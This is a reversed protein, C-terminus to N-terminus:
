HPRTLAADIHRDPAAAVGAGIDGGVQGTRRFQERLGRRHAETTGGWIGELSHDMAYGLCASRFTCEGCARRVEGPLEQSSLPFFLEADLDRCRQTGDFRPYPAPARDPM